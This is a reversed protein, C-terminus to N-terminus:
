RRDSVLVIVGLVAVAVLGAAGAWSLPIHALRENLADLMAAAATGVFVGAFPLASSGSAFIGYQQKVLHAAGSALLGAALLGAWVALNPLHWGMEVTRLYHFASGAYMLAGIGAPILAIGGIAEWAAAAIVLVALALIGLLTWGIYGGVGMPAIVDPVQDWDGM